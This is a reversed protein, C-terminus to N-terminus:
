IWLFNRGRLGRSTLQIVSEDINKVRIFVKRQYWRSFNKEQRKDAKFQRTKTDPIPLSKREKGKGGVSFFEQLFYKQIVRKVSASIVFHWLQSLRSWEVNQAGILLWYFGAGLIKQVKIVLIVIISHPSSDAHFIDINRSLIQVVKVKSQGLSFGQLGHSIM